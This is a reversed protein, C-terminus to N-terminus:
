KPSPSAIDLCNTVSNWPSIPTSDVNPLPAVNVKVARKLIEGSWGIASDGKKEGEQCQKTIELRGRERM